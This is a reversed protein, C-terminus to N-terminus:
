ETAARPIENVSLRNHIHQWYDPSADAPDVGLAEVGREEM